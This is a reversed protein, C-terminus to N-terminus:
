HRDHKIKALDVPQIADIRCHMQGIIVDDTGDALAQPTHRSTSTEIVVSGPGAVWNHELYKWRGQVTGTFGDVGGMQVVVRGNFANCNQRLTLLYATSPRTWVVMTKDGTRQWNYLNTFRFEPIPEGAYAAYDIRTGANAFASAALLAATALITGFKM